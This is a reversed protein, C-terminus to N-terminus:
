VSQAVTARSQSVIIVIINIPLITEDSSNKCGTRFLIENKTLGGFSISSEVPLLATKIVRRGQPM